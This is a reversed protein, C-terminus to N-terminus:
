PWSAVSKRCTMAFRCAAYGATALNSRVGTGVPQGKRHHILPLRAAGEGPEALRRDATLPRRRNWTKWGLISMLQYPTAGNRRRHNGRGQPPRPGEGTGGSRSRGSMFSLSGDCASTARIGKVIPFSLWARM